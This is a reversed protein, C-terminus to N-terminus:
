FFHSHLPGTTPILTAYKFFKFFGTNKSKLPIPPLSFSLSCSVLLPFLSPLGSKRIFHTLAKPSSMQHQYFNRIPEICPVTESAQFNSAFVRVTRCPLSQLPALSPAPLSHTPAFLLAQGPRDQHGALISVCDEGGVVEVGGHHWWAVGELGMVVVFRTEEDELPDFGPGWLGVSWPCQCASLM